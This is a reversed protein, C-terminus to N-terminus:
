WESSKNENTKLEFRNNQRTLRFGELRWKGTSIKVLSYKNLEKVGM